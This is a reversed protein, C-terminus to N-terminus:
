LEKDYETWLIEPVYELLTKATETDGKAIADLLAYFAVVEGKFVRGGTMDDVISDVEPTVKMFVVDDDSFGFETEEHDEPLVEDMLYQSVTTSEGATQDLVWQRVPDITRIQKRSQGEPLERDSM